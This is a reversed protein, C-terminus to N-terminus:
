SGTAHQSFNSAARRVRFDATRCRRRHRSPRTTTGSLIDTLRGTPGATRPSGTPSATASASCITEAAPQRPLLNYPIQNPLRPPGLRAALCGIRSCGSFETLWSHLLRLRSHPWERGTSNPTRTDYQRRLSDRHALSDTRCMGTNHDVDMMASGGEHLNSKIRPAPRIQFLRTVRLTLQQIHRARPHPLKRHGTANLHRRLKQLRSNSGFFVSIFPTYPMGRSGFQLPQM